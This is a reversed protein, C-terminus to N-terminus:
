PAMKSAPESPEEDDEVASPAGVVKFLVDDVGKALDPRMPQRKPNGMHLLFVAILLVAGALPRIASDYNGLYERASSFVIAGSGSAMTSVWGLISRTMGVSSRGFLDAFITGSITGVVGWFIGYLIAFIWCVVWHNSPSMLGASGIATAGLCYVFGMLRIKNEFLHCIRPFTLTALISGATIVSYVFSATAPNSGKEQFINVIHMNMGARFTRYLGFCLILMFFSRERVIERFPWDEEDDSAGEKATPVASAAAAEDPQLCQAEADTEGDEDLKRCQAEADAEGDELGDTSKGVVSPARVAEGAGSAHLEVADAPALGDPQLGLQEPRDVILLWCVLLIAGQLAGMVVFSTRWGVAEKLALLLPPTALLSSDVMMLMSAARARDREFWMNVVCYALLECVEPGFLRMGFFCAGLSWAGSVRSVLATSLVLPLLNLLLLFKAGYRDFIYGAAPLFSGSALLAVMWTWSVESRSIGLDELMDDLFMSLGFSQGPMAVLIVCGACALVVNGYFSRCCWLTRCRTSTAPRCSRSRSRPLVLTDSEKPSGYGDGFNDYAEQGADPGPGGGM